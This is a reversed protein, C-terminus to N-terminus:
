FLGIIILFAILFFAFAAMKPMFCRFISIFHNKAGTFHPIFISGDIM